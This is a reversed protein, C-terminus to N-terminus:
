PRRQGHAHKTRFRGCVRKRNPIICAFDRGWFEILFYSQGKLKWFIRPWDGRTEAPVDSSDKSCRRSIQGWIEYRFSKASLSNQSTNGGAVSRKERINAQRLAARRFRVRRIPELVRARGLFRQLNWRNLTRHYMVWNDYVKWLLLQVKTIGRKRSKAQNNKLRGISLFPM